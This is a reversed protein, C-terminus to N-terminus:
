LWGSVGLRVSQSLADLVLRTDFSFSETAFVQLGASLELLWGAERDRFNQQPTYLSVGSVRIDDVQYFYAAGLTPRVYRFPISLQLYPGAALSTRSVAGDVEPWRIGSTREYSAAFFAGTTLWATWAYGGGLSLGSASSAATARPVGRDADNWVSRAPWSPSWQPGVQRRRLLSTEGHIRWRKQASPQEIAPATEVEIEQAFAVYSWACLLGVILALRKMALGLDM